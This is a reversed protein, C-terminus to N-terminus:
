RRPKSRRSKLFTKLGDWIAGDVENLFRPTWRFTYTGQGQLIFDRESLPSLEQSIGSVCGSPPALEWRSPRAKFVQKGAVVDKARTPALIFRWDDGFIFYSASIRAGIPYAVPWLAGLRDLVNPFGGVQQSSKVMLEPPSDNEARSWRFDWTAMGPTDEDWTVTTVLFPRFRELREPLAFFAARSGRGDKVAELNLKALVQHWNAQESRVQFRVTLEWLAVKRGGFFFVEETHTADEPLSVQTEPSM